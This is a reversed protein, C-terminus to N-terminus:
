ILYDIHVKDKSVRILVSEEGWTSQFKLTKSWGTSHLSSFAAVAGIYQAKPDLKVKIVASKGPAVEVRQQSIYEDGLAKKPNQYLTAFDAGNFADVAKLQYITVVVPSPRGNIDPNANTTAVVKADLKHSPMIPKFIACSSLGTAVLLILFLKAYIKM